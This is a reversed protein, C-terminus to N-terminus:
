PKVGRKLADIADQAAEDALAAARALAAAAGLAAAGLAAWWAASRVPAAWYAARAAAETRERCMLRWSDGHGDYDAKPQYAELAAWMENLKSVAEGGDSQSHRCAFVWFGM